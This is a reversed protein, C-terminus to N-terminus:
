PPHSQLNSVTRHPSIEHMGSAPLVEVGYAAPFPKIMAPPYASGGILTRKLTSFRLKNEKMYNLLGLWVTPVGASMTVGESEFLQHVSKGDLHPGPFVMKAGVMACSYPLSWANVHFM